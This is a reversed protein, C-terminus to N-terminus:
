AGPRVAHAAVPQARTARCLIEGDDGFRLQAQQGIRIDHIGSAAGTSVFDGARLPKGRRACRALAFALAALPGGPISTGGGKGVSRGEILTECVLSAPARDRWNAIEPGVILGANNGFDSVVVAPGLENITALPSSAPEMGIHLAGAVRAAEDPTWALKDRPADQALRYVFEAEVAAFGGEFVPFELVTAPSHQQISHRFIPGVLREEGFRELWPAPIRGVKWGAVSDPWLEIARDQIEYAADMSAPLPGPYQALASARRRAAVFVEAIARAGRQPLRTDDIM